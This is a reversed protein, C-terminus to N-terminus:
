DLVASTEEITPGVFSSPQPPGRKIYEAHMRDSGGRGVGCDTQHRKDSAAVHDSDIQGRSLEFAFLFM